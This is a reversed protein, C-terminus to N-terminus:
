IMRKKKEIKVKKTKEVETEGERYSTDNCSTRLSIPKQRITFSGIMPTTSFMLPKTQGLHLTASVCMCVFHLFVVINQQSNLSFAAAIHQVIDGPFVKGLIRGFPVPEASNLWCIM